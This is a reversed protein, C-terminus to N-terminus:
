NSKICIVETIDKQREGQKMIEYESLAINVVKSKLTEHQQFTRFGQM